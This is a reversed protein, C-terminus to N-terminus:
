KASFMRSTYETMSDTGKASSVPVARLIGSHTHTLLLQKTPSQATWVGLSLEAPPRAMEDLPISAISRINYLQKPDRSPRSPIQARLIILRPNHHDTLVALAQAGGNGPLDKLAFPSVRLVRANLDIRAVRDLPQPVPNLNTGPATAPLALFEVSSHKVVALCPQGPALFAELYAAQLQTSPKHLHTIAQM